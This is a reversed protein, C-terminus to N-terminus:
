CIGTEMQPVLLIQWDGQRSFIRDRGQAVQLTLLCPLKLHLLFFFLRSNEGKTTSVSCPLTLRSASAIHQLLHWRNQRLNLTQGPLVSLIARSGQARAPCLPRAAGARRPTTPIAGVLVASVCGGHYPLTGSQEAPVM